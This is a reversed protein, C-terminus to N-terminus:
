LSGDHYNEKCRTPSFQFPKGLAPRRNGAAPVQGFACAVCAAFAAFAVWRRRSTM